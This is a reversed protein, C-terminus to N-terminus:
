TLRMANWECVLLQGYDGYTNKTHGALSTRGSVRSLSYVISKRSSQVKVTIARDGLSDDLPGASMNMAATSESMVIADACLSYVPGMFAKWVHSPHGLPLHNACGTTM